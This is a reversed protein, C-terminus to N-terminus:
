DGNGGRVPVQAVLQEGRESRRINIELQGADVDLHRSLSRIIDARIAAMAEPTLKVHDQVLVEVLRQKAVQASQSPPASKKSGRGFLSDLFGM